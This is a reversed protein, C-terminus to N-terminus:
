RKDGHIPCLNNANSGVICLCHEVNARRMLDKQNIGSSIMIESKELFRSAVLTTLLLLLDNDGDAADVIVRDAATVAKDLARQRRSEAEMWDEERMARKVAM